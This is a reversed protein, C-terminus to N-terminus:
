VPVFDLYAAAVCGDFDNSGLLSNHNRGHKLALYGGETILDKVWTYPIPVM